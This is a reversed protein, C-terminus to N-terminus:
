SRNTAGQESQWAVLAPTAAAVIAAAVAAAALVAAVVAAAVAVAVAAVAAVAVAAVLAAVVAGPVVALVAASAAVSNKHPWPARPLRVPSSSAVNCPALQCARWALGVFRGLVIPVAPM